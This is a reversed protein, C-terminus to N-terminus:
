RLDLLSCDDHPAHLSVKTLLKLAGGWHCTVPGQAWAKSLVCLSCLKNQNGPVACLLGAKSLGLSCRSQLECGELSIEKLRGAAM